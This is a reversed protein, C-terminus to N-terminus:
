FNNEMCIYQQKEEIENIINNIRSRFVKRIM